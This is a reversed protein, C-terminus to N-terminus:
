ELASKKAAGALSDYPTCNFRIPCDPLSGKRRRCTAVPPRERARAKEDMPFRPGGAGVVEGEQRYRGIGRRWLPESFAGTFANRSFMGRFVCRSM